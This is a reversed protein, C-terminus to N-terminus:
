LLKMKQELRRIKKDFAGEMKSAKKRLRNQLEAKIVLLIFFDRVSLTQANKREELKKDEQPM